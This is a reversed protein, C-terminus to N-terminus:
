KSLDVIVNMWNTNRSKEKFDNESHEQVIIRM